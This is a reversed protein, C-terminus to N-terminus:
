TRALAREVIEDVVKSAPGPLPTPRHEALIRKAKGRALERMGAFGSQEYVEYRSRDMITPAWHEKRLNEKTHRETLFSRGTHAVRALVEVSGRVTEPSFDVGRLIRRLYGYLEDDAVIGELSTTLVGNIAGAADYNLNYGALLASLLTATREMGSQLDNLKSDSTGAVGCSPIDYWRCMQACYIYYLSREPCGESVDGTRMDMVTPAHTYLVPAGPRALQALTVGFLLEANQQILLGALTVPATAGSIPDTEVLVPLGLRACELLVEVNTDGYIFPSKFCCVFSVLNRRLAEERSGAAAAAIDLHDRVEAANEAQNMLHKGTNKVMGELMKVYLGKKPLDSPTIPNQCIELNDLADQLRVMEELDRFTGPRLEGSGPDLVNVCNGCGTTHVMNGGVVVDRSPDRGGMAFRSPALRLAKEVVHQPVRAVGEKGSVDCGADKLLKLAPEYGVSVGVDELVNLSEHHWARIDDEGLYELGRGMGFFKAM